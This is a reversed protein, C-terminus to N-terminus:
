GWVIKTKIIGSFLIDKKRENGDAVTTSSLHHKERTDTQGCPPHTGLPHRGPPTYVGLCFTSVEQGFVGGPCAGVGLCVGGEQASVGWCVAAAAPPVCGVPICEQKTKNEALLRSMIESTPNEGVIAPM